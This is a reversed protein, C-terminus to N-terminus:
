LGGQLVRFVVLMELSTAFGCFMTSLTFGGVSGLLLNRWGLRAALAGTIPTAIATAVLNFTITWAVQDQTASLAGQMQPMVVAVVTITMGFLLTTLQVTAVLLVRRFTLYELMAPSQLM